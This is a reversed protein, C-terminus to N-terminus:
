PGVRVIDGESKTGNTADYFSRWGIETATHGDDLYKAGFLLHGGGSSHSDPGESVLCWEYIRVRPNGTDPDARQM